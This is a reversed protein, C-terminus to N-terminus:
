EALEVGDDALDENSDDSVIADFLREIADTLSNVAMRKTIVTDAGAQLAAAELQSSEHMTLIIIKTAPAIRRIERAADIGNLEPMSIDLIVFDPTLEKVQDIAERGNEAEGCINWRPNRSLMARIGQRMLAHDDAVLIRAIHGRGTRNTPQTM